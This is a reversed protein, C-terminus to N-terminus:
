AHTHSKTKSKAIRRQLKRSYERWFAQHPHSKARRVLRNTEMKRNRLKAANAKAADLESRAEDVDDVFEGVATAFEEDVFEAVAVATAPDAFEGAGLEAGACAVFDPEPPVLRKM